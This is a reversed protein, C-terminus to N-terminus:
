VMEKVHTEIFDIEQQNLGYKKYLQKDIDAVSQSWDIDSNPTFDQLPVYAWTAPTIHQTIKLVGLLCRVFKTKIYEAANHAETETDFNGISLFTPFASTGPEGVVSKGIIRAPIPKGIQGAAGDANSIMVKYKFINNDDPYRPSLYKKSVWKFVRKGNEIGLIKYYNEKDSPEQEVFAYPTREFSSSKIEYEENPGLKKIAPHKKQLSRLIVNRTDPYDSLFTENFKLDSRGGYIISTMSHKENAGFRSAISRLIDNPIFLGIPNYRKTADRYVIVVGGNINTNSFVDSSNSYYQKVKVHEDSLMKKNWEKPTLGANFLFRAPSILIYKDAVEEAAVYFSPYIAEAKNNTEGSEQYPPNGIVYDFRMSSVREQLSNYELSRQSRWDNVKCKPREPVSDEIDFSMQEPHPAFEDMDMQEYNDEPARFPITGKLGDMQWLNWAIITSITHLEKNTPKRGWRNEVADVFTMLLNIRAVLLNDGQYEYGYVSQFARICWQMWEEETEANENVVRLKRDLIGIRHSQEIAEGTAADYRSVLFPAEGCTIELRRSDVYHKWTKKKPFEIKEETPTWTQGEQKFFVDKRGFWDEDLADNMKCCIWTPTFVEAHKRTREAQDEQSKYVRPQIIGRKPGVILDETIQSEADYLRGHDKYTNTAWLINKPVVKFGTLRGGAKQTGGVRKTTTNDKLLLPLMYKVPYSELDILSKGM